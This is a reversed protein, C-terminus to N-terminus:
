PRGGPAETEIYKKRPEDQDTFNPNGRPSGLGDHWGLRTLDAEYRRLAKALAQLAIRAPDRSCSTGNTTVSWLTAICARMMKTTQRIVKSQTRDTM